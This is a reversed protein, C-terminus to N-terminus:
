RMMCAISAVPVLQKFSFRQGYVTRVGYSLMVNKGFRWDGGYAITVSQFRFLNQRDRNLVEVFFNFKPSGYRISLGGQLEQTNPRHPINVQTFRLMGTMLWKRGLGLCGNVWVAVGDQQLNLSDLQDKQYNYSKGVAVDLFSANWHEKLYTNALTSITQKQLKELMTLQTELAQAQQLVTMRIELYESTTPLRQLSDSLRQQVNILEQRQEYYRETAGRLLDPEDMPDHSRFLTIKAAIALRRLQNDDEITGASVDLTSLLKMWKTAGQYKQLNARNYFIEWIPQAQIAINPKLRWSAFSWDVKFDRINGPKTVQAPTVGLLDFAASTPITFELPKDANLTPIETQACVSCSMVILVFIIRAYM